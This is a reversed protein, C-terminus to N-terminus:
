ADGDAGCHICLCREHEEVKPWEHGGPNSCPPPYSDDEAAPQDPVRFAEVAALLADWDEGEYIHHTDADTLADEPDYYAGFRAMSPTDRMAPDAYDVWVRVGAPTAFSPCADNRWSTDEWGEPIAPLTATDFNPHQDRLLAFRDTM